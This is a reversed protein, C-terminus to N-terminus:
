DAWGRIPLRRPAEEPDERAMQRMVKSARRKWWRRMGRAMRWVWRANRPLKEVTRLKMNCRRRRGGARVYLM